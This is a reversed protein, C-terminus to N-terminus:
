GIINFITEAEVLWDEDQMGQLGQASGFTYKLYSALNFLLDPSVYAADAVNEFVDSELIDGIIEAGETVTMM